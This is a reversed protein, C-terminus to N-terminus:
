ISVIILWIGAVEAAKLKEFFGGERGTNKTVLCDIAFERIISLNMEVSFPGQMAIINGRKIGALHCKRISEEYPLVRVFVEHDKLRSAFSLDKSGTTFLPRRINNTLIWDTAEKLTDVVVVRHYDTHELMHVERTRDVYDIEMEKSVKKAITTIVKAYPHTCDIIRTIKHRKIFDKLSDETFRGKIVRESFRERFRDYGYETAITLLFDERRRLLEAGVSFAETTGGLILIM